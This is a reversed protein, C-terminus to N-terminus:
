GRDPRPRGVGRLRGARDLLLTVSEPIAIAQHWDFFPWTFYVPFQILLRLSRGRSWDYVWLAGDHQRLIRDPPGLAALIQRRTAEGPVLADLAPASPPAGVQWTQLSCGTALALCAAATVARKM